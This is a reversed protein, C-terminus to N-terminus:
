IPRPMQRGLYMLSMSRREQGCLPRRPKRRCVHAASRASRAQEGSPSRQLGSIVLRAFLAVRIDRHVKYGTTHGLLYRLHLFFYTHRTSTCDRGAEIYTPLYPVMAPLLMVERECGDQGDPVLSKSLICLLNVSTGANAHLYGGRGQRLLGLGRQAAVAEVDIGM